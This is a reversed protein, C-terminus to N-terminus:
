KECDEWDEVDPNFTIQVRTTDQQPPLVITTDKPKPPASMRELEGEIETKICSISSLLLPIILCKKFMKLYLTTMTMKNKSNNKKINDQTKM